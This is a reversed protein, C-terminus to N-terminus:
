WTCTSCTQKTRTTCFVSPGYKFVRLLVSYLSFNLQFYRQPLPYCISIFFSTRYAYGRVFPGPLIHDLRLRAPPHSPPLHHRKDNGTNADKPKEKKATTRSRSAYGDNMLSLCTNQRHIPQSTNRYDLCYLDYMATHADCHATPYM